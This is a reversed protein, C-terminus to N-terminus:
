RDYDPEDLDVALGGIVDAFKMRCLTSTARAILMDAPYRVWASGERILGAAKAQEITWTVSTSETEHRRRGVAVAHKEDREPYDISHGARYVLARMGEATLGAKGEIVTVYRLATLPPLGVEDGWAMAAFVAEPRGRLTKPIMETGATRQALRFLADYEVMRPSLTEPPTRVVTRDPITEVVGTTTEPTDSM